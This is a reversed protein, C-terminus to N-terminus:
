TRDHLMDLLRGLVRIGDMRIGDHELENTLWVKCGRVARATQESLERDVYMDDAYVVAACPVTNRALVAPDYLTPWDDKNALIEAAEKLPRLTEVEDFMWPFIMEGTFYLPGDAREPDFEPLSERVRHAAWRTSTGQAYIPEHLISFIPHADFGNVNEYERLFGYDLERGERGEVFAGELMYHVAEFGSTMGFRLGLTLFRRPSLVGSAPLRVDKEALHGVIERVRTENEPYREYFRRNREAVGQFTRRYVEEATAELPPLGGTILAGALGEPATSLYHTVCFGGFSQGLITWPHEGIRERRILEADRVISDARFHTLYEAQEAPSRGALTQFSVPTSRGTGRPDLLLVRYHECAKRIWGSLSTPRPSPFGPGGQFFVLYPLESRERDTAVIERAYVEIRGADPRDHDLPCDFRRDRCHFGPLAHDLEM